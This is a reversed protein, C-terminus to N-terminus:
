GREERMQNLRELFEPEVLVERPKAGDAPGVIGNQEMMDVLRAARAYGLKLRRQIHSVSIQGMQVAMRVAQEYAPDVEEDGAAAGGGEAQGEERTVSEDYLPKGQKKLFTVIRTAEIETVLPGHLRILRSSGPPVFLMDGHGLLHEAGNADLITRSDVKSSVRMAIRCPFNAKIVGTIIDVSPRQTSLILHIGVARAMQALRTIAEEVERGTTMMLDALEDILIVIYPLIAPKEGPLFHRREPVGGEGTAPGTGAAADPAAAAGAQAPAGGDTASTVGTAAGGPAAGSANGLRGIARKMAVNYQDISRVGAEALQKYRREMEVVAWRLANGAKKTDTVLPTLLHPINEYVGLELRKPDIMVFKVEDPSAKYLISTLISNLCVSKGSGTSGAILLHPMKALDAYYPEGNIEKGLALSLAAPARQFRESGILERLSIVERSRNPVEIGVTSKGALRDIRISEAKIALCLDDALTVIRSYKVGADPKFEYVTVVPGPQIAIVQGNVDFERCKETLLRATEVMEKEDIRSEHQPPNLLSLPPPTYQSLAEVFDFQPQDAGTKTDKDTAPTTKSARRATKQPEGPTAGAGAVAPVPPAPREPPAPATEPLVPIPAAGRPEAFPEVAQHAVAAREQRERQRREIEARQHERRRAERHRVFALWASQALRGLRAAIGRAADVVSSRGVVVAGAIALAVAVVLGGWRNFLGALARGAFAGVLGGARHAPVPGSEGLALDLSATVSVLILLSGLGGAFTRSARGFFARWGVLFLLPPATWAAWGFVQYLGESLLAGVIGAINHPEDGNWRGFPWPVPDSNDHSVLSLVLLVACAMVLVALGEGLLGRRAPAERRPSTTRRKAAM